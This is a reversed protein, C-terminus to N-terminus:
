LESILWGRNRENRFFRLVYRLVVAIGVVCWSLTCSWGMCRSLNAQVVLFAVAAWFVIELSNIIANAKYSHWRKFRPVYETFLQYALFILSKAGMGLAITNARTRPQNKIFLRPVSLGMAFTILVLQLLHVPLKFRPSFFAM